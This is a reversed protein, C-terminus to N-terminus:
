PPADPDSTADVDPPPVSRARAGDRSAAGGRAGGYLHRFADELDPEPFALHQVRHRALVALIPNPSGTVALRARRPAHEVITVGPVDLAAAPVEEEFRVEMTRTLRARLAAVDSDLVKHGERLLVVRTCSRDVESLVHSSHVVTRGRERARAVLGLVAERVLPDLGSTPEDLVLVEPDHQLAAVLGIKQKTGRSDARVPRDLDAGTLRLREALVAVRRPDAPPLARPRLGDLLALTQRGTLREDLALEGPLYGVRRRARPDSPPAGLLAVRGSTPRILGLLLRLATTKGAGNPGLLGLVEGREVVLDIPHLGVALGYRKSLGRMEVISM